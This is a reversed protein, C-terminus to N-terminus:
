NAAAFERYKRDLEQQHEVDVRIKEFARDFDQRTLARTKVQYNEIHARGRDVLDPVGGNLEVVMLNIAQQVLRELDRGSFWDTRAVLDSVQMDLRHGAKDILIGLIATRAPADPLPIFVRKQFRSLIADDLDWPANTASVTLVSHDDGKDALGDLESLLTSLVRREAGSESGEGRPLCLSEIEDIFVVSFGADARDRATDFLMSILKSSEGFYKSLLSGVKVNFFTASLGNSTAAALLTKGTGPPGYFLIRRWGPLSVGDPKAALAVGYAFKIERKTEDLGGIQDWTAPSRYILAEIAASQQQEDDDANSQRETM